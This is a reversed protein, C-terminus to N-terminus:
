AAHRAIPPPPRRAASQFQQDGAMPSLIPAVPQCRERRGQDRQRAAAVDRNVYQEVGIRLHRLGHEGQKGAFQMDTQDRREAVAGHNFRHAAGVEDQAIRPTDLFLGGRQADWQQHQAVCGLPQSNTVAPLARSTPVSVSCTTLATELSSASRAASAAM